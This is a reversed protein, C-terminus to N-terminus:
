KRHYVFLQRMSIWSRSVKFVQVVALHWMICTNGGNSQHNTETSKDVVIKTYTSSQAVHISCASALHLPITHMHCNPEMECHIVVSNVSNTDMLTSCISHSYKYNHRCEKGIAPDTFQVWVCQPFNHKHPNCEIFRIHCEAGNIIGDSVALNATVEHLQGVNLAQTFPLNGTSNVDKNKAAALIAKQINQTIDTPPSDM